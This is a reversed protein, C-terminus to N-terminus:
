WPIGLSASVKRGMKKWLSNGGIFSVKVWVKLEPKIIM